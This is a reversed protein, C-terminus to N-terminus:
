TCTIAAELNLGTVWCSLLDICSYSVFVVGAVSVGVHEKVGAPASRKKERRTYTRQCAFRKYYKITLDKKINPMSLM